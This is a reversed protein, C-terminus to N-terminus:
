PMRLNGEVCVMARVLGVLYLMSSELIANNPLSTSEKADWDQQIEASAEKDLELLSNPFMCTVLFRSPLASALLRARLDPPNLFELYNCPRLLALPCEIIPIGVNDQM